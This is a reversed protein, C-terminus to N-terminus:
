LETICDAAERECGLAKINLNEALLKIHLKKTGIPASEIIFNQRIGNENNVFEETFGRHSIELKNGTSKSIADTQPTYLIRGDAFIGQNILQFKFNHGASDVRNQITLSGPKYYARLNHRRNPSQLIDTDQRTINYEREAIKQQLEDITNDAIPQDSIKTPKEAKDLTIKSRHKALDKSFPHIKVFCLAFSLIIFLISKILMNNTALRSTSKM